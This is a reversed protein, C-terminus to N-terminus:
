IRLPMARRPRRTPFADRPRERQERRIDGLLAPRAAKEMTQPPLLCEPRHLLAGRVRCVDKRLNGRSTPGNCRSFGDESLKVEVLVVTRRGNELWGWLVVDVATAKEDGIPWEGDLEGLLGGPPVWEFRVKDITLHDGVLESIHDSLLTPKERFPLFLNFAFIQSSRPHM